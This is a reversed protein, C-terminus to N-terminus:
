NQPIGPVGVRIAKSFEDSPLTDADEARPSFKAKERLVDFPVSQDLAKHDYAYNPFYGSLLVRWDLAIGKEVMRTVDFVVTTCNTTLTNYWRPHVALENAENVYYLLIERADKLPLMVRYVRLDEKRINTRLRLFDREDGALIVLESQKFFGAITSFSQGEHKRVETSWVLYQGDSFGYSVMIHAIAEGMWYDAILDVSQLKSLDYRRTEWRPTFDSESRWDFNRINTLTLIDGNVEGQLSRAVDPTWDRANSPLITSWWMLVAGMGLAYAFTARVYSGRWFALLLAICFLLWLLAVLDNRYAAAPLCYWMALGGWVASAILILTVVILMLGFGVRALIRFFSSAM